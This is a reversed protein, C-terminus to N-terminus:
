FLSNIKQGLVGVTPLVGENLRERSAYEVVLLALNTTLLHALM